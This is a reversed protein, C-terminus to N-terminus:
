FPNHQFKYFRGSMNKKSVMERAHAFPISFIFSRVCCKQCLRYSLHELRRMLPMLGVNSSNKENLFIHSLVRM